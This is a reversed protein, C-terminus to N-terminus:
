GKGSEQCRDFRMVSNNTWSSLSKNESLDSATFRAANNSSNSMLGWLCVCVCTMRVTNLYINKSGM